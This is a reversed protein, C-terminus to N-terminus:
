RPSDNDRYCADPNWVVGLANAVPREGTVDSPRNTARGQVIMASSGGGDLNLAGDAGLAVFLAALEPLTMGVSHDDRRGDVVVLWMRGSDRAFGVATRPHRTASFSPRTEVGLDGAVEGDVVLVPDGGLVRESVRRATRSLRWGAELATDGSVVTEGIWPEDGARWAFAPRQRTRRVRGHAAEAGLPRGEPTFFDGNVAAVVGISGRAMESVTALGPDTSESGTATLVDLGLACRTLDVSLVQLSLPRASWTASTLTVGPVVPSSVMTGGPISADLALTLGAHARVPRDPPTCAFFILAVLAMGQIRRVMVGVDCGWEGPAGTWCATKM